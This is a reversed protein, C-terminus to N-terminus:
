RTLRGAWGEDHAQRGEHRGMCQVACWACRVRVEHAQRCDYASSGSCSCENCARNQRHRLVGGTRSASPGAAPPRHSRIARASSRAQLGVLHCASVAVWACSRVLDSCIFQLEWECFLPLFHLEQITPGGNTSHASPARLFPLLPPSHPAPNIKFSSWGPQFPTERGTIRGQGATKSTTKLIQWWFRLVPDWIDPEATEPIPGSDAGSIADSITNPITNSCNNPGSSCRGASRGRM